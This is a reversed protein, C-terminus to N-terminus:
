VTAETPEAVPTKSDPTFGLDHAIDDLLMSLRLLRRPRIYEPKSTTERATGRGPSHSQATRKRGVWQLLTDLGKVTDGDDTEWLEVSEWMDTVAKNHRFPRLEIYYNLVAVHFERRLEEPIGSGQSANLYQQRAAGVRLIAREIKQLVASKRADDTRDDTM